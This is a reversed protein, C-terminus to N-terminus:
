TKLVVLLVVILAIAGGGIILLMKPDVGMSKAVNGFTGGLLDGMMKSQFAQAQQFIPKKAVAEPALDVGTTGKVAGGLGKQIDQIGRGFGRQIGTVGSELDKQARQIEKTLNIKGGTLMGFLDAM